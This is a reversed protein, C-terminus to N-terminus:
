LSLKRSNTRGAGKNKLHPREQKKKSCRIGLALQGVPKRSEGTESTHWGMWSEKQQNWFHFEPYAIHIGEGGSGDQEWGM